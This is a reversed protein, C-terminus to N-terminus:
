PASIPLSARLFNAWHVGTGFCCGIRPIGLSSQVVKNASVLETVEALAKEQSNEPAQQIAARCRFLWASARTRKLRERLHADGASSTTNQSLDIIRAAEESFQDVLVFSNDEDYWQQDSEMIAIDNGFRASPLLATRTSNWGVQRVVELRCSLSIMRNTLVQARKAGCCM